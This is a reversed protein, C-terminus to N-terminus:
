GSRSGRAAHAHGTAARTGMECPGGMSVRETLRENKSRGAIMALIPCRTALPSERAPPATLTVAWRDSRLRLFADEGPMGGVRRVSIPRPRDAIRYPNSPRSETTMPGTLSLPELPRSGVVVIGPKCSRPSDADMRSNRTTDRRPWGGAHRLAVRRRTRSRGPSRSSCRRRDTLYGARGNM